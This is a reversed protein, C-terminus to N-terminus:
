HSGHLTENIPSDGIVGPTLCVVADESLHVQQREVRFALNRNKLVALTAAVEDGLLSLTM